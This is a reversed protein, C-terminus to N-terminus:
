NIFTIGKLSLHYLNSFHWLTQLLLPFSKRERDREQEKNIRLITTGLIESMTSTVSLLLLPTRSISHPSLFLLSPFWSEDREPHPVFLQSSDEGCLRMTEPACMNCTAPFWSLFGLLIVGVTTVHQKCHRSLRLCFFSCSWFRLRHAEPKKQLDSLSEFCFCWIVFWM